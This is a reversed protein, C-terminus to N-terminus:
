KLLRMQQQGSFQILTSPIVYKVQVDVRYNTSEVSATSYTFHKLNDLGRLRLCVILRGDSRECRGM